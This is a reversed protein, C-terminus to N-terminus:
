LSNVGILVTTMMMMTTMLMMLMMILMMTTMLMMMLSFLTAVEKSVGWEDDHDDADDDHDNQDDADDDDSNGGRHQDGVGMKQMRGRTEYGEYLPCVQDVNGDTKTKTKSILQSPLISWIWEPTTGLGIQQLSLTALDKSSRGASDETGM